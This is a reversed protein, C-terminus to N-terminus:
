ESESDDFYDWILGHIHMDAQEDVAKDMDTVGREHLERKLAVVNARTAMLRDITRKSEEGKEEKSM